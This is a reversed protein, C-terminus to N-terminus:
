SSRKIVKVEGILQAASAARRTKSAAITDHLISPVTGVRTGLLPM